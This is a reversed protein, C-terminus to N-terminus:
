DKPRGRVILAIRGSHIADLVLKENEEHLRQKEERMRRRRVATAGARASRVGLWELHSRFTRLSIRQNFEAGLMRRVEDQSWGGRRRRGGPMLRSKLWKLHEMTMPVLPGQSSEHLKMGSSIAQKSVGFAEALSALSEGSARRQRIQRWTEEDLRKRSMFPKRPGKSAPKGDVIRQVNPAERQLLKLYQNLQRRSFRAKATASQQYIDDVTKKSVGFEVALVMAAEGSRRRRIIDKHDEPSLKRRRDEKMRHLHITKTKRALM